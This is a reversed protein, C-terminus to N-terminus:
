PSWFVTLPVASQQLFISIPMSAQDQTARAKEYVLRKDRGTIMLFLHDCQLLSHPTMTMRELHEGAAGGSPAHMAACTSKAALVEPLAQARPFLSATHGDPGMGLLAASWPRSLARYARNCEAVAALEGAGELAHATKMGTFRCAAGHGKLLTERVLRENSDPHTPPVWREDVLAVDIREWPLPEASLAEYLPAPSAGGSLFLTARPAAALAHRLQDVLAGRLNALMAARDTYFFEAPM